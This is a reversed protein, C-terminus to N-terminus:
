DYLGKGILDIILFTFQMGAFFTVILAPFVLGQELCLYAVLLDILLVLIWIKVM